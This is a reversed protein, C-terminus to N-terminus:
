PSPKIEGVHATSFHQVQRAGRAMERPITSSRVAASASNAPLLPGQLHFRQSVANYATLAAAVASGREVEVEEQHPSDKFM